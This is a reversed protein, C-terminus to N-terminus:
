LDGDPPWTEWPWWGALVFGDWHMVGPEQDSVTAGSKFQDAWGSSWAVVRNQQRDHVWCQQRPDFELMPRM